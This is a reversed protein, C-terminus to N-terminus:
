KSNENKRLKKINRDNGYRKVYEDLSLELYEYKKSSFFHEPFFSPRSSLTHEDMLLVKGIKEYGTYEKQKVEVDKLDKQTSCGFLFEFTRDFVTLTEKVYLVNEVKTDTINLEENVERVVAEELSENIKKHGGPFLLYINGSANKQEIVLYKDGEKFVARVVITIKKKKM